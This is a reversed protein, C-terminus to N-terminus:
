VSTFIRSVIQSNITTTASSDFVVFSIGGNTELGGKGGQATFTNVKNWQLAADNTKYLGNLRTGCYVVNSNNPDIALREGACRWASNGYVKISDQWGQNIIWSQGDNSSKL